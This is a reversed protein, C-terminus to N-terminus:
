AFQLATDLSPPRLLLLTGFLSQSTLCTLLLLIEEIMNMLGLSHLSPELLASTKCCLLVNPVNKASPLIFDM